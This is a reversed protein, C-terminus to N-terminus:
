TKSLREKETRRYVNRVVILGIPFLFIGWIGCLKVGVYMALLTCLPHLGLFTGVIKPEALQRIITIILYLVLLCVGIRTNGGALCIIGWPILVTGAGLVPLIDVLAILFSVLFTYETGIISLGIFLETFTLAIILSYARLYGFVVSFLEEKFIFLAKRPTEPFFSALVRNIKELDLCFYFTAIITVLIFLAIHPVSKAAKAFLTGLWVAIQPFFESIRSILKQEFSVSADSLLGLKGIYPIKRMNQELMDSVGHLTAEIQTGNESIYGYLEKAERFLMSFFLFFVYLLTFSVFIVCFASATKAPIGAYKVLLAAPKKLSLAFGWAFIFPLFALTLYKVAFFVLLASLVCCVLICTTKILRNETQM